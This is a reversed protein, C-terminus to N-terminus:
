AAASMNESVMQTRLKSLAGSRLQSIRSENVGMKEAIERNRWGSYFSLEIVRDEKASLSRRASVIRTRSICDSQIEEGSRIQSAEEFVIENSLSMIGSGGFESGAPLAKRARCEARALPDQARLFRANGSCV